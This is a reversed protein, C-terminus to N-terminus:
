EASVKCNICNEAKPWVNWISAALLLAIGVSYLPQNQLWFKGSLIVAAGVFGLAFPKCGWRQRAKWVLPILAIVLLVATGPLLFPTYDVFGLGLASVLGAYLQWCAPCTLVPLAAFALALFSPLAMIFKKM